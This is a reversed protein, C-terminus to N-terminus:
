SSRRAAPLFCLLRYSVASREGASLAPAPSVAAVCRRGCHSTHRTVCDNAQQMRALHARRDPSAQGVGSILHQPSRVAAAAVGCRPRLGDPQGVNAGRPFQCSLGADDQGDARRVRREINSPGHVSESAEVQVSVGYRGIGCALNRLENSTVAAGIDIAADDALRRDLSLRASYRDPSWRSRPARGTQRSPAPAGARRRGLSQRRPLLSPM